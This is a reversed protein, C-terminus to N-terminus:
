RGNIEGRVIRAGEALSRMKACALHRATQSFGCDPTIHVREPEINRLVERLRSAVLDRLDAPAAAVYECQELRQREEDAGGCAHADRM